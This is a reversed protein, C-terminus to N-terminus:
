RWSSSRTCSCSSSPCSCSSPPPPPPWTSDIRSSPPTLWRIIAACVIGTARERARARACARVCIPEAARVELKDVPMQLPKGDSMTKALWPLGLGMFINFINSGLVNAVAMDGQGNRAVLISSLADPVSTGAALVVLGMVLPPVGLVCGMRGAFDVMIFSLIGIWLISMSFTLMYYREREPKACDPVTWRFLLELPCSVMRALCGTIGGGGGGGGGADDGAEGGESPDGGSAILAQTDAATAWAGPKWSRLQRELNKLTAQDPTEFTLNGADQVHIMLRGRGGDAASVEWNHLRAWPWECLPMENRQAGPYMAHVGFHGVVVTVESPLDFINSTPFVTHENRAAPEGSLRSRLKKMFRMKARNVQMMTGTACQIQKLAMRDSARAKAKDDTTGARFAPQLLPNMALANQLQKSLVDNERVVASKSRERFMLKRLEEDTAGPYQLRQQALEKGDARRREWAQVRTVIPANFIMLLVYGVYGGILTVSEGVTVQKDLMVFYMMIIALVYVVADRSLPYWWIDLMQGACICTVGVIMMINFIASGVITGLGESGGTILTTVIATFLEPASSGVAMFTAGAVDDSLGLKTSIMALSECFYSDCIIALGLFTYLTVLLYIIVGAGNDIAGCCTATGPACAGAADLACDCQGSIAGTISFPGGTPQTCVQTCVAAVKLRRRAAEVLPGGGGRAGARLWVPLTENGGELSADDVGRLRRGAAGGGVGRYQQVLASLCMAAVLVGFRLVATRRHKTEPM